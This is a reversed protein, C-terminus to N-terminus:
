APTSVKSQQEQLRKKFRMPDRIGYVVTMSDGVGHIVISGYNLMKGGVSQFVRLSEIKALPIDVTQLAMIGASVIVRADTLVLRISYYGQLVQSVNFLVLVLPAFRVLLSWPTAWFQAVHTLLTYRQMGGLGQGDGAWLELSDASVGILVLCVVVAVAMVIFNNQYNWLSVRAAYLLKENPALLERVGANDDDDHSRAPTSPKAM